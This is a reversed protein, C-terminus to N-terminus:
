RRVPMCDQHHARLNQCFRLANTRDAFYGARMRYFVGREKIEVRQVDLRAEEFLEPARRALRDWAPRVSREARFAGLQAVYGGDAIFRPAPTLVLPVPAEDRAADERNSDRGPAGPRPREREGLREDAGELPEPPAPEREEAYRDRGDGGEPRRDVREDVESGAESRATEPASDDPENAFQWLLAGFAVLSVLWFACWFGAARPPGEPMRMTMHAEVVRPQARAQASM